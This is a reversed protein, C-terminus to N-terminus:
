RQAGAVSELMQYALESRTKNKNQDTEPIADLLHLAIGVAHLRALIGVYEKAQNVTSRYVILFTAAIFETLVGSCTTLIAANFQEARFARLVGYGILGFGVVMVLLTISFIIRTEFLNRAFYLDLSRRALEWMPRIKEPQAEVTSEVEQIRNNLKTLDIRSTFIQYLIATALFGVFVVLIWGLSILALNNV